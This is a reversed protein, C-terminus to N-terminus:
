TMYNKKVTIIQLQQLLNNKEYLTEIFFFICIINRKYVLIKYRRGTM